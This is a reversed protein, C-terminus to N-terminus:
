LSLSLLKLKGAIVAAFSSFPSQKKKTSIHKLLVIRFDYDYCVTM